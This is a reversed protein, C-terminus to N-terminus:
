PVAVLRSWGCVSTRMPLTLHLANLLYSMSVDDLTKWSKVPRPGKSPHLICRLGSIASSNQFFSFMLQHDSYSGQGQECVRVVHKERARSRQPSNLPAQYSSSGFLQLASQRNANRVDWHRRGHKFVWAVVYVHLLWVSRCPHFMFRGNLTTAEQEYSLFHRCSFIFPFILMM